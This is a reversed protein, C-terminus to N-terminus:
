LNFDVWFDTTAPWHNLTGADRHIGYQTVQTCTIRNIINEFRM